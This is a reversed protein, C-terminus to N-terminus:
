NLIHDLISRAEAFTVFRSVGFRNGDAGRIWAESTELQANECIGLHYYKMKKLVEEGFDGLEGNLAKGSHYEAVVLGIETMDDTKATWAETDVVVLVCHEILPATIDNLPTDLLGLVELLVLQLPQAAYTTILADWRQKPTPPLGPTRPVSGWNM